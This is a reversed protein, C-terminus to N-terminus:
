EGAVFYDILQNRSIGKAEALKEAHLRVSLFKRGHAFIEGNAWIVFEGRYEGLKGENYM